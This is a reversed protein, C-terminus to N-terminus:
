RVGIGRLAQPTFDATQLKLPRYFVKEQNRLGMAIYRGNHLDHHVEVTPFWIGQDYLTISHQEASRWLDGRSDYKDTVVVAWSDEDIYFVRKAYIHSKGPKLTAEVVWVRHLEYRLHDPHLHGPKAIDAYRLKPSSLRYSNYPVYLERKGLLKWDYRDPAGNFMFQDDVTRQGDAGVIPNDYAVNPALRVRRQGPYYIWASRPERNQDVNEHVLLVEGALRPPAVVTQMYNVRRNALAEAAPMTLNGYHFQAQYEFETAIYDGARTPAIHVFHMEFTDGWYRLLHNWIAQLGNAPVPFPVGGSCGTVGNGDATLAAKAACARTQEYHKAPYAATRRTPYVDMRATPYLKLVALQGPSLKDQHREANAGTISFLPKDGPFPDAYHGGAAHAIGAPVQALGGEWAPIAGAANGAREAGMPTHQSSPGTGLQALDAAALQALAPPGALALAALLSPRLCAHLPNLPTKRRSPTPGREPLTRSM